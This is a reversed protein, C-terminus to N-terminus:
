HAHPVLGSLIQQNRESPAIKFIGDAGGLIEDPDLQDFFAHVAKWSIRSDDGEVWNWEPEPTNALVRRTVWVSGGKHWTELTIAAFM